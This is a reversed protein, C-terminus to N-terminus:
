GETIGHAAKTMEDCLTAINWYDQYNNRIWQAYWEPTLLKRQPSTTNKMLEFEVIANYAISRIEWLADPVAPGTSKDHAFDGIKCLTKVMKEADPIHKLAKCIETSVLSPTNRQIYGVAAALALSRTEALCVPCFEPGGECHAVPEQKPQAAPVPPHTYLPTAKAYPHNVEEWNLNDGGKHYEIWAMPEVQENSQKGCNKCKTGCYLSHSCHECGQENSVGQPNQQALVEKIATIAKNHRCVDGKGMSADLWANELAELAQELASQAKVNREQLTM